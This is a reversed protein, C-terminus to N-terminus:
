DLEFASVSVDHVPADSMCDPAGSMCGMAFTIEAFAVRDGSSTGNERCTGAVCTFGTPCVPDVECKYMTGDYSPAALCGGAVFVAVLSASVRM